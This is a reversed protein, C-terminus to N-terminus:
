GVVRLGHEGEDAPPFLWQRVHDTVRQLREDEITERYVGAMTGDAHGMINSTAIADRAGDGITQFTHRLWYLTCNGDVGAKRKLRRFGEITLDTRRGNEENIRILPGGHGSLFLLEEAGPKPKRRHRIAEAIADRTEEWLPIRREIGTKSRPLELWGTEVDQVKIRSIDSNGLGGNICLLIIAKWQPDAANILRLLDDRSILKKGKSAKHLRQSKKSATKFDPGFRPMKDIHESEYAWKLIMRTVAVTKTVMAPSYRAALANRMAAFDVPRLEGPDSNRGLHDLIVRCVTKYDGFCLATLEGSQVRQNNRDLWLNVTELLTLSDNSQRPTRGAQLDDRVELYKTLASGPHSWVGFFHIRGRIKKCWQGNNHATLPFERYPKKPKTNERKPM